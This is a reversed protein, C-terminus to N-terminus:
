DNWKKKVEADKVIQYIKEVLQNDKKERAYAIAGYILTNREFINEQAYKVEAKLLSREYEEKNFKTATPPTWGLLERFRKIEEEKRLEQEKRLKAREAELTKLNEPTASFARGFSKTPFARANLTFQILSLMAATLRDSFKGDAIIHPVEYANIVKVLYRFYYTIVNTKDISGILRNAVNDLPYEALTHIKKVM